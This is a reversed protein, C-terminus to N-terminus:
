LNVRKPYINLIGILYSIKLVKVASADIAAFFHEEGTSFNEFKTLFILMKFQADCPKKLGLVLNSYDNRNTKKQKKRTSSHFGYTLLKLLERTISVKIFRVKTSFDVFNM